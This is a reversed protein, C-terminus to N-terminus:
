CHTLTNIVNGILTCSGTSVATQQKCTHARQAMSQTRSSGSSAWCQKAPALNVWVGSKATRMITCPAALLTLKLM